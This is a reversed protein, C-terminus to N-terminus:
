RRNRNVGTLVIMGEYGPRLGHSEVVEVHVIEAIDAFCSRVDDEDISCAPFLHRGVHYGKSRRMFAAAFPAGTVLSNVFREGAQRFEDRRTTISEAVFFMTGIDYYGPRLDFISGREVEAKDDLLRLPRGIAQYKSRGRSIADWFAMWSEAPAQLQSKLWRRNPLAHECLTLNDAFPLMSLAPYLNAGTGVDIGRERRRFSACGQFFDAVIEIIQADDRRLGAYNHKFYEEPDFGDWDFDENGPGYPPNTDPV